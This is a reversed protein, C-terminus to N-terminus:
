EYSDTVKIPDKNKRKSHWHDYGQSTEEETRVAPSLVHLLEQGLIRYQNGVKAAHITGRRILRTMTSSSVKLLLRAEEPTYVENERIEVTEGYRLM